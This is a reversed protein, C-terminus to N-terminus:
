TRAGALAPSTRSSTSPLLTFGTLCPAPPGALAKWSWSEPFAPTDTRKLQKLSFGQTKFNGTGWAQKWTLRPVMENIKEVKGFSLLVM